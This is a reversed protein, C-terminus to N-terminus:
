FRIKTQGSTSKNFSSITRPLSLAFLLLERSDSGVVITARLSNRLLGVVRNGM